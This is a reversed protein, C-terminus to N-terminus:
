RSSGAFKRGDPKRGLPDKGGAYAVVPRNNKMLRDALRRAKAGRIM